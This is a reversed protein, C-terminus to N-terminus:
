EEKFRTLKRYLSSRHIGLSHAAKDACGDFQALRARIVEEEVQQLIADLPAKTSDTVGRDASTATLDALHKATIVDEPFYIVAQEVLNILQRVNGPWSLGTLLSIASEDFRKAPRNNRIGVRRSFEEVLEPVDERHDNLPPVAIVCVNLRYFLDQRFTNTRVAEPLDRHTAAIVRVDSRRVRNEGIREFEKTELFRLLKAQLEIPMEGVEDLFLTGGDAMEVKGPKDSVAGTFAGKVHGFLESDALEKPVAACNVIQLPGAAKPSLYHLQHAVLEKGTGTDGHILVTATSDAYRRIERRLKRMSQSSGIIRYRDLNQRLLERKETELSRKRLANELTALLEETVYPKVLFDFAGQKLCNVAEKTDAKGSIIVVEPPVPLKKMLPLLRGADIDLLYYDLIVADVQEDRLTELAEKGSTADLVRYSSELIRRLSQLVRVEDDVILVTNELVIL